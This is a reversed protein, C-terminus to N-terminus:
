WYHNKSRPDSKGAFQEPPTYRLTGLLNDSGTLNGQDQIKALGFDSLWVHGDRDLILNGPKIDRHLVGQSHAHDLAGAIRAGIYAVNKWYCAPLDSVSQPTRTASHEGGHSAVKNAIANPETSHNSPVLSPSLLLDLATSTKNLDGNAARADEVSSRDIGVRNRLAAILRDLSAGDIFQM